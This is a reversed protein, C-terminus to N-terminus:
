FSNIIEDSIPFGSLLNGNYRSQKEMIENKSVFIENHM